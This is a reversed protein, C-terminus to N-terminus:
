KEVLNLQQLAGLLGATMEEISGEFLEVESSPTPSFSRKVRTPSGKLGTEEPNLQLDDIGWVIIPDDQQTIRVIDPINMYRPQNLHRTATILVPPHVKIEQYGDEMQREVFMVGDEERIAQAYTVQPIHLREALQPGVQATDGDIAQQGCLILDFPALKHVAAALTHATAWTDAGGFKRDSLLVAEDAGMCLAEMLAEKAQPPGMSLVTVHVDPNADKRSLAYELAHMDDPNIISPVGKRIMTGTEPDIRIEKTDPVQKICVIIKM